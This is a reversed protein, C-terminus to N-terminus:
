FEGVKQFSERAQNVLLTWPELLINLAYEEVEDFLEEYAPMLHNYVERSIEEEVGITRRACSLLYTSYLLQSSLFIFIDDGGSCEEVFM